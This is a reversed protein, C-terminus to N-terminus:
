KVDTGFSFQAVVLAISNASTSRLSTLRPVSQVSREIPKAVHDAVDSAGAGAFPAVITIVPFDINPLLEQQLSGWASVGAIFLALALLLTVSRQSVALQSLRSM